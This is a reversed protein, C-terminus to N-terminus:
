TCQGGESVDLRIRDIGDLHKAYGKVTIEDFCLDFKRDGEDILFCM